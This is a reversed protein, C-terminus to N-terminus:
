MSCGTVIIGEDAMSHSYRSSAESSANQHQRTGVSATEADGCSLAVLSIVPILAESGEPESAKKQMGIQPFPRIIGAYGRQATRRVARRYPFLQARRSYNAIQTGQPAIELTRSACARMSRIISSHRAGVRSSSAFMSNTLLDCRHEANERSFSLADAM